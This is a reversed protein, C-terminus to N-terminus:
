AAAPDAADALEINIALFGEFHASIETGNTNTDATIRIDSNPPIIIPTSRTFQARQTAASLLFDRTLPLWLGGITKYEFKCEVESNNSGLMAAGFQMVILYDRYSTSTQCKQSQNYSTTIENVATGGSGITISLTGALATAGTNKLRSCRALPQTIAVPTTGDSANTSVTQVHFILNDDADLYHGEINIPISTDAANASAIHTISNTTQLTENSNLSSVVVAGSAAALNHNEGFKDLPKSKAEVSVAEGYTNAIYAEAFAM